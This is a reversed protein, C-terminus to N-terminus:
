DKLTTFCYRDLSGSMTFDTGIDKGGLTVEAIDDARENIGSWSTIYFAFGISM